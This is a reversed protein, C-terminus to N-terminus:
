GAGVAQPTPTNPPSYTQGGMLSGLRQPGSPADALEPLLMQVLLDPDRMERAAIYRLTDLMALKALGPGLYKAQGEAAIEIGEKTVDSIGRAELVSATTGFGKEQLEMALKVRAAKQAEGGPEIQTTITGPSPFRLFLEPSIKQEGKYKETRDAKGLRFRIERDHHESKGVTKLHPNLGEVVDHAVMRFFKARGGEIQRLPKEVSRMGAEIGAFISAATGEEIVEPSPNLMVLQRDLKDEQRESAEYVRWFEEGLRHTIDRMSGRVAPVRRRGRQDRSQTASGMDTSLLKPDFGSALLETVKASVEPPLENVFNPNAAVTMAISDMTTLKHELTAHPGIVAEYRTEDSAHSREIGKFVILSPEGFTNPYVKPDDYLRKSSGSGGEIYCCITEGDDVTYRTVTKETWDQTQMPDSGDGARIGPYRNNLIQIPQAEPDDDEGPETLKVLPIREELVALVIEGSREVFGVTNPNLAEIKYRWYGADYAEVRKKFVAETEGERREKPPNYPVISVWAAGFRSRVMHNRIRDWQVGGPDARNFCHQFYVEMLDEKEEMGDEGLDVHVRWPWSFISEYLNVKGTLGRRKVVVPEGLVSPIRSEYDYSGEEVEHWFKEKEDVARIHQRADQVIRRVQAQTRKKKRTPM